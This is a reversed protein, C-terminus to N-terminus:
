DNFPDRIRMAIDNTLKRELGRKVIPLMTEGWRKLTEVYTVKKSDDRYRDKHWDNNRWDQAAPEIGNLEPNFFYRIQFFEGGSVLLYAVGVGTRPRRIGQADMFRYAEEFHKPPRDALTTTYHNVNWCEQDRMNYNRDGVAHLM